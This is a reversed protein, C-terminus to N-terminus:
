EDVPLSCMFGAPRERAARAEELPDADFLVTPNLANAEDAAIAAQLPATDVAQRLQGAAVNLRLVYVGNHGDGLPRRRLASAHRGPDAPM